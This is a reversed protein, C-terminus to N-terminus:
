GSVTDSHVLIRRVMLPLVRGDRLVTEQPLLVERGRGAGTPEPAPAHLPGEAVVVQADRLPVRDVDPRVVHVDDSYSKPVAVEDTPAPTMGPGPVPTTSLPTPCPKRYIEKVNRPKSTDPTEVVSAPVSINTLYKVRDRSVGSM